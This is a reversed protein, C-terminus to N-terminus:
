LLKRISQFSLLREIMDYVIHWLCVFLAQYKPLDVCFKIGLKNQRKNKKGFITVPLWCTDSLFLLKATVEFVLENIRHILQYATNLLYLGGEHTHSLM